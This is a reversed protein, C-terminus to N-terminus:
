RHCVPRAPIRQGLLQRVPRDMSPLPYDQRSIQVAGTMMNTRTTFLAMAIEGSRTGGAVVFGGRGEVV